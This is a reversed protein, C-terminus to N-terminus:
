RDLDQNIFNLMPYDGFNIAIELANDERDDSITADAGSKLLLQVIDM